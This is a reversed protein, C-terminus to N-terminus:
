RGYRAKYKSDKTPCLMGLDELLIPKPIEEKNEGTM